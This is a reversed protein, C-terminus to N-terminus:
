KARKGVLRGFLYVSGLVVFFGLAGMALAAPYNGGYDFPAQYVPEPESAGGHEMTSELGDGYPASFIFFFVLGVAFAALIAAAAKLYRREVM